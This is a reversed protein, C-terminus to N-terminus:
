VASYRSPFLHKLRGDFNQLNPKSSATRGTIARCQNITGHIYGDPWKMENMLKPIGFYYTGELKRLDALQLLLDIIKRVSRHRRLGKLTDEDVSYVRYFPPDGKATREANRRALEQDSWESTPKTESGDPPDVKRPLVHWRKCKREYTRSTHKYQRTVVETSEYNIHGGYLIASLHDTSGWNIDPCGVEEALEQQVRTIEHAVGNGLELSREKDYKLGNFEMEELVILDHCHLLFLNRRNGEFQSHQYWFVERTLEVDRKLYDSLDLWPVDTTDLGKDWYNVKIYDIKPPLGYEEAAGDLSPFAANQNSRIFEFLQCDWVRPIALDPIYNRLWHLDFKLNFGVICVARSFLESIERLKNGYPNGSHEIDWEYYQGEFWIGVACLKNPTSFPNGDKYITTECDVFLYREPTTFSM